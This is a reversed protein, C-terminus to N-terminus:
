LGKTDKKEVRYDLNLLFFDCQKTMLEADVNIHRAKCYCRIVEKNDKDNFFDSGRRVCFECAKVTEPLKKKKVNM